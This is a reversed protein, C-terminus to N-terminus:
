AAAEQPQAQQMYQMAESEPSRTSQSTHTYQGNPGGMSGVTSSQAGDTMLPPQNSKFIRTLAPTNTLSSMEQFYAEADFQIGVQALFPMAPMLKMVQGDIFAAKEGPSQYPMSYPDIDFKYDDYSGQRSPTGDQYQEGYALLEDDVENPFSSGPIAFKGPIRLKTDHFILWALGRAAKRVFSVYRQQYFAELRSVMAGIMREQTATDASPGSGLKAKLNGAAQSHKEETHIMLGM